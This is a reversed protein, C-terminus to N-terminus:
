SSIVFVVRYNKPVSNDGAKKVEFYKEPVKLERTLRRVLARGQAAALGKDESFVRIEVPFNNSMKMYDMVEELMNEGKKTFREQRKKRFLKEGSIEMFLKGDKKYRIASVVKPSKSRTIGPNGARDMWSLSYVYPAELQLINGQRDFGDWKFSEPLGGGGERKKIVKGTPDTVKFAWKELEIKKPMKVSVRFVPPTETFFLLPHYYPREEDVREPLSMSVDRIDEPSLNMFMEETKVFKEAVENEDTKVEIEPKETKIEIKLKGKVVVEKSSSEEGFVAGGFILAMGATLFVAKVMSKNM